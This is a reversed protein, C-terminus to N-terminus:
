RAPASHSITFEREKVVDEYTPKWEKLGAAAPTWSEDSYLPRYTYTRNQLNCGWTHAAGSATYMFLGKRKSRVATLEAM